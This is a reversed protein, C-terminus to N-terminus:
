SNGLVLKTLKNGTSNINIAVPEGNYSLSVGPAYGLTIRFPPKGSLEFFEDSKKLSAHVRENDGNVIEVWCDATFRFNLTSQILVTEQQTVRNKNVVEISEVAAVPASEPEASSDALLLNLNDISSSDLTTELGKLEANLEVAGVDSENSEDATFFNGLFGLLVLCAIAALGIYTRFHKHQFRSNELALMSVSALEE